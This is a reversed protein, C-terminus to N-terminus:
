GYSDKKWHPIYGFGLSLVATTPCAAEGMGGSSQASVGGRSALQVMCLSFCLRPTVVTGARKQLTCPLRKWWLAPIDPILM